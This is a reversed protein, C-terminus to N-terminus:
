PSRRVPFDLDEPVTTPLSRLHERETRTLSAVASQIAAVDPPGPSAGLGRSLSELAEGGHSGILYRPPKGERAISWYDNLLAAWFSALRDATVHGRSRVGYALADSRGASLVELAPTEPNEFVVRTPGASVRASFRGSPKGALGNLVQAISQARALPSAFRAEDRIILVPLGGLTVAAHEHHGAGAEHYASAEFLLEVPRGIRVDSGTGRISPRPRHVRERHEDTEERTPTEPGRTAAPEEPAPAPRALMERIVVESVGEQRLRVADEASLVFRSDTVRILRIIEEDPYREKTLQIVDLVSLAALAAPLAALFSLGVFSLLSKRPFGASRKM